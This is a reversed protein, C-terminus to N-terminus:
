LIKELEKGVCSKNTLFLSATQKMAQAQFEKHKAGQLLYYISSLLTLLLHICANISVNSDFWTPSEM